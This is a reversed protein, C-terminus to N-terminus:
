KKAAPTRNFSFPTPTLQANSFKAGGRNLPSEMTSLTHAWTTFGEKNTIGSNIINVNTANVNMDTVSILGNQIQQKILEGGVALGPDAGANTFPKANKNIVAQPQVLSQLKTPDYGLASFLTMTNGYTKRAHFEALEKEVEARAKPDSITGSQLAKNIDFGAANSLAKNAYFGQVSLSNYAQVNSMLNPNFQSQYAIRDADMKSYGGIAMLNQSTAAQDVGYGAGFQNRATGIDKSFDELNKGTLAQYQSGLLTLRGFDAVAFGAKRFNQAVQDLDGAKNPNTNLYPAINQLIPLFNQSGGYKNNFDSSMPATIPKGNDTLAGPVLTAATMPNGWRAFSTQWETVAGLADRQALAARIMMNKQINSNVEAAKEAGYAAGTLGGAAAGKGIGGVAGAAASGVGGKALGGIGGAIGGLAGGAVSGAGGYISEYLAQNNAIQRARETNYLAGVFGPFAQQGHGMVTESMFNGTATARGMIATAQNNFYRALGITVAAGVATSLVSGIKNGLDKLAKEGAVNFENVATQMGSTTNAFPASSRSSGYGGSPGNINALKEIAANLKQLTDNLYQASFGEGSEQSFNINIDAM